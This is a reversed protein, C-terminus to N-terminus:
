EGEVAADAPIGVAGHAGEVGAFARDLLDSEGSREIQSELVRRRDFRGSSGAAVFGGLCPETDRPTTLGGPDFPDYPSKGTVAVFCEFM